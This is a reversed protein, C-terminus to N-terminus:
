VLFSDIRPKLQGSWQKGIETFCLTLGLGFTFLSVSHFCMIYFSRLRDAKPRSDALCLCELLKANYAEVLGIMVLNVLSGILAIAYLPIKNELYPYALHNM